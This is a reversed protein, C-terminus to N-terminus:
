GVLEKKLPMKRKYNRELKAYGERVARQDVVFHIGEISNLAQAVKDWVQSRESTGAKYRYPEAILIERCLLVDHNTSWVMKHRALSHKHHMHSISLFILDGTYCLYMGYFLM